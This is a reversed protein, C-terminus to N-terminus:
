DEFPKCNAFPRLIKVNSFDRDPVDTPEEDEFCGELPARPDTSLESDWKHCTRGPHKEKLYAVREQQEKESAYVEIPTYFVNWEERSGYDTDHAVFYLKM